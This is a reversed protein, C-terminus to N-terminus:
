SQWTAGLNSVLLDVYSITLVSTGQTGAITQDIRLIETTELVNDAAATALTLSTRADAALTTAAAKAAIDKVKTGAGDESDINLATTNTAAAQAVAGNAYDIAMIQVRNPFAINYQVSAAGLPLVISKLRDSDFGRNQPPVAATSVSKAASATDAM